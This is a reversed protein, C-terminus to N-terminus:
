AGVNDGVVIGRVVPNIEVKGIVCDARAALHLDRGGLRADLGKFVYQCEEQAFLGGAVAFVRIRKRYHVSKVALGLRQVKPESITLPIEVKGHGDGALRIRHVENFRVARGRTCPLEVGGIDIALGRKVDHRRVPRCSGVILEAFQEDGQGIAVIVPDRARRGVLGDSVDLDDM